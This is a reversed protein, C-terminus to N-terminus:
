GFWLGFRSVHARQHHAEIGSWCHADNFYAPVTIVAEKVESGLYDESVKKLKALVAASVEEPAITKGRVDFGCDNLIFAPLRLKDLISRLAAAHGDITHACRSHPKDSLGLGYLDPMIVRFENRLEQAVKRYLFGWTPNGHVMVVPLGEGAEMVHMRWAGTDVLYRDFPLMESLWAPLEPAPLRVSAPTSM